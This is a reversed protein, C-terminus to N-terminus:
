ARPRHPRPSFEQVIEWTRNSSAPRSIRGVPFPTVGNILPVCFEHRIGLANGVLQFALLDLARRTLVGGRLRRAGVRAACLFALHLLHRAARRLTLRWAEAVFVRLSWDARRFPAENRRRTITPYQTRLAM